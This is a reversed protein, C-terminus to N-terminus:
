PTEYQERSAARQTGLLMAYQIQTARWTAARAKTETGLNSTSIVRIITIYHPIIVRLPHDPYCLSASDLRASAM